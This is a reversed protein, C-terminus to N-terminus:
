GLRAPDLHAIVVDLFQEPSAFQTPTVVGQAHLLCTGKLIAAATEPRGRRAASVFSSVTHEPIM